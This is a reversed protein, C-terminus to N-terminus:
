LIFYSSEGLVSIMRMETVDASSCVKLSSITCKESLLTTNPKRSQSLVTRKMTRERETVRLARGGGGLTFSVGRLILLLSWFRCLVIRTRPPLIGSGWSLM